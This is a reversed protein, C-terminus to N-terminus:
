AGIGFFLPEIHRKLLNNTVCAEISSRNAKLLSFYQPQMEAAVRFSIHVM